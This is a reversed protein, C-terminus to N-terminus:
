LNLTHTHKQAHTHRRTQAGDQVSDPRNCGVSGRIKLLVRATCLCGLRLPAVLLSGRMSLSMCMDYTRLFVQTGRKCSPVGGPNILDVMGFSSSRVLGMCGGLVDGKKKENKVERSSNKFYWLLQWLSPLWPVVAASWAKGKTVAVLPPEAHPNTLTRIHALPNSSYVEVVTPVLFM